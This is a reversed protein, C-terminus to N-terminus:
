FANVEKLLIWCLDLGTIPHSVMQGLRLILSIPKSFTM